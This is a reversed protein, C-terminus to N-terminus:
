YNKCWLHKKNTNPMAETSDKKNGSTITRDLGPSMPYSERPVWEARVSVIIVCHNAYLTIMLSHLNYKSFHLLGFIKLSSLSTKINPHKLITLHTSNQRESSKWYLANAVGYFAKDSTNVRLHRLVGCVYMCGYAKLCSRWTNRSLEPGCYVLHCWCVKGSVLFLSNLSTHHNTNINFPRQQHRNPDSPM